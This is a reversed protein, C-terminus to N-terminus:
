ARSINVIFICLMKSSCPLDMSIHYFRPERQIYKWDLFYQARKYSYADCLETCPCPSNTHQYLSALKPALSLCCTWIPVRTQFPLCIALFSMKVDILSPFDLAARPYRTAVTARGISGKSAPRRHLVRLGASRRPVALLWVSVLCARETRRLSFLFKSSVPNSHASSCGDEAAASSTCWAASRILCFSTCSFLRGSL